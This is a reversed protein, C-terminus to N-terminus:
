PINTSRQPAARMPRCLDAFYCFHDVALPLNAHRQAPKKGWSDLVRHTPDLAMRIRVRAGSRPFQGVESGDIPSTNIFYEGSLPETFKGDIYSGCTAKLSFLAGDEGPHVYRM